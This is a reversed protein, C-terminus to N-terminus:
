VNDGWKIINKYISSSPHPKGAIKRLVPLTKSQLLINVLLSLHQSKLGYLSKFRQIKLQLNEPLRVHFRKEKPLTQFITEFKKIADYLKQNSHLYSTHIVFQVAQSDTIEIGFYDRFWKKIKELAEISSATLGISIKM